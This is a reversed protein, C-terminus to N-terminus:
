TSDAAQEKQMILVRRAYPIEIDHKDFAEKIRKRLDREVQLHCGPKVRTVTRITLESEGFDNLGKIDTAEIVSNNEAKLEEGTTKLVEFVKNLDSEYAVGVEVVANTYGKSFHVIEAIQGNRVIHHRGANDRIRTTRLDISEVVGEANGLRIFDGVLFHEEFLIFFGCVMDNILNQAGLGVALGVIGAGALIPTPDIGVEKLILIGAAFYILYTVISRFLPVMTARRQREHTTMGERNLLTEEMLFHVLEKAVRSLFVIAIVRIIRPGWEALSQIAEIQLLVLSAVTVMVVYEVCRRFLPVLPRLREYADSFQSRAMYKDSLANASDILAGLARLILIGVAIILFVRLAVVLTGYIGGPLGLWAVAIAVAALWTGIRVTRSLTAFFKEVSEDNARIGEFEIAKRSLTALGRGVYNLIIAAAIFLGVVKALAIGTDIWFQQPISKVLNLTYAPLNEGRYMLYGNAAILAIVVLVGIVTLLLRLNSQLRGALPRWRELAPASSIGTIARRIVANLVILLVTVAVIEAAVTAINVLLARLEPTMEM